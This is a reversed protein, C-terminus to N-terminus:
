EDSDVVERVHHLKSKLCGCNWFSKEGPLSTRWMTNCCEAVIWEMPKPIEKLAGVEQLRELIEEAFERTCYAEEDVEKTLAEIWKQPFKM